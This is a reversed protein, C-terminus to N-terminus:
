KGYDDKHLKEKTELMIKELRTGRLHANVGYGGFYMQSERVKKARKKKDNKDEVPRKRHAPIHIMHSSVLNAKVLEQALKEESRALDDIDKRTAEWLQQVDTTCGHRIASGVFEEGDFDGDLPLSHSDFPLSFENKVAVDRDLLVSTPRSASSGPGKTASSVRYWEDGVKISEGRRIENFLPLSTHISQVGPSARVTGSLTVFFPTGRPYIVLSKLEKNRIAILEGGIIMSQIDDEISDYCDKIDEVVIGSANRDLTILLDERDIIIFKPRYRYLFGGDNDKTVEIKSNSLLTQGLAVDTRIDIDIERAIDIASVKVDPSLDKLCEVIAAHKETISQQTSTPAASPATQSILSPPLALGGLQVGSSLRNSSSSESNNFFKLHDYHAGHM